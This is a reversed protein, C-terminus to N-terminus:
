DHHRHLPLLCPPATVQEEEAQLALGERTVWAVGVLPDAGGRRSAEGQGRAVRGFAGLARLGGRGVALKLSDVHRRQPCLPSFPGCLPAFPGCHAPVCRDVVCVCCTYCGPRPLSMPRCFSGQTPSTPSQRTVKILNIKFALKVAAVLLAGRGKEGLLCPLSLCTLHSGLGCLRLWLPACTRM